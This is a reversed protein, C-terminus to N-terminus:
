KEEKVKKFSHSFNNIESAGKIKIHFNADVDLNTEQHRINFGFNIFLNIRELPITNNKIRFSEYFFAQNLRPDYGTFNFNSDITYSKFVEGSYGPLTKALENAYDLNATYKIGISSMSRSVYGFLLNFDLNKNYSFNISLSISHFEAKADKTLWEVKAFPGTDFDISADLDPPSEHTLSDFKYDISYYGSGM